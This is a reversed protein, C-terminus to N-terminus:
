AYHSLLVYKAQPIDSRRNDYEYMDTMGDFHGAEYKATFAEVAERSPEGTWRVNVSDGMSYTESTVSFKQGPFARRLEQRIAQAARAAESLVRM